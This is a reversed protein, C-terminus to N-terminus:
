RHQSAADPQFNHSIQGICAPNLDFKAIGTGDKM